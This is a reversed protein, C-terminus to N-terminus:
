DNAKEQEKQERVLKQFNVTPLVVPSYGANLTLTSVFSRLFPYAIAPANVSPIPSAKFEETLATDAKFFSIYELDLGTKIEKDACPKPQQQIYIWVNSWLKCMARGSM